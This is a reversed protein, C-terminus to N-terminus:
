KPCSSTVTNSWLPGRMPDNPDTRGDHASFHLDGARQCIKGTPFSLNGQADASQDFNVTVLADDVIRITVTANPVFGSGTVTFSGDGKAAVSIAPPVPPPPPAVKKSVVVDASRTLTAPGHQTAATRVVSLHFSGIPFVEGRFMKGGGLSHNQLELISKGASDFGDLNTRIVPSAGISAEVTISVTLPPNGTTPDVNLDLTFDPNEPIQSFRRMVDLASVSLHPNIELEPNLVTALERLSVVAGPEGGFGCMPVFPRLKLTM